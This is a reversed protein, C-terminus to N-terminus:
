DWSDVSPPAIQNPDYPRRGGGAEDNVMLPTWPNGVIPLPRAPHGRVQFHEYRLQSGHKAVKVHVDHVLNADDRTRDFGIVHHVVLEAERGHWSVHEALIHFSVFDIPAATPLTNGGGGPREILTGDVMRRGAFAERFALKADREVFREARLLPYSQLALVLVVGFVLGWVADRTRIV